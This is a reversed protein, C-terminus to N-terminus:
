HEDATSAGFRSISRLEDPQVRGERILAEDVLVEDL